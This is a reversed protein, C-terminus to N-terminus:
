GKRRDVGEEQRGRGGTWGKKRDVRGGEKV